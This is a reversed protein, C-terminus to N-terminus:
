APELRALRGVIQQVADRRMETRILNEEFSTGLVAAPDFVYDRFLDVSDNDVLTRGQSDRASYRVRYELEYERAKGTEADVTLVRREYHENHVVVVIDAAEVTDSREVGAEGLYDRLDQGVATSGTQVYVTGLQGSGLAQGRLHFGCGSFAVVGAALLLWAALRSSSAMSTSADRRTDM